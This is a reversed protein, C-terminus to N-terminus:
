RSRSVNERRQSTTQRSRSEVGNQAEDDDNLEHNVEKIWVCLRAVSQSLACLNSSNFNWICLSSFRYDLCLRPASLLIIRNLLRCSASSFSLCCINLSLLTVWEDWLARWLWIAFDRWSIIFLYFLYNEIMQPTLERKKTLFNILSDWGVQSTDRTCM